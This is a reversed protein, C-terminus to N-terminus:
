QLRGGESVPIPKGSKTAREATAVRRDANRVEMAILFLWAPINLRACVAEIDPEVGDDVSALLSLAGRLYGSSRMAKIADPLEREYLRSLFEKDTM